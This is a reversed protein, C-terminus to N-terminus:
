PLVRELGVRDFGVFIKKGIEIVVEEQQGSVEQMHSLEDVDRSIDKYKYVVGRDEFFLKVQRFDGAEPRAYVNVGELPTRYNSCICM